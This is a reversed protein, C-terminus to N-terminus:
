KVLLVSCKSRQLVKHSVSGVYEKLGTLGRNGIILLDFDGDVAKLITEAVNAGRVSMTEVENGLDSFGRKAEALLAESDSELADIVSDPLSVAAGGSTMASVFVTMVCVSIGSDLAAVTHACDLVRSAMESGDIAVAVKKLEM